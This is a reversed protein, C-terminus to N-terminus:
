KYEIKDIGNESIYVSKIYKDIIDPTLEDINESYKLEEDIMHIKNSNENMLEQIENKYNLFTEKDIRGSKYKEFYNLKKQKLRDNNEYLNKQKDLQIKKDDAEIHFKSKLIEHIKNEIEIVSPFEPEEDIIRCHFCYINKSNEKRNYDRFNYSVKRGCKSCRIFGAIPSKINKDDSRKDFNGKNRSKVIEMAKEQLERTVIAEHHNYIKKWEDEPIPTCKGGDLKTKVTKNYVFTGSYFENCIVRRVNYPVWLSNASKDKKASNSNNLRQKVRAGPTIIGGENLIKATEKLTNGELILKFIYRVNDAVIDDIIVNFRNNPDKIYGYPPAGTLYKGKEYNVHLSTKMKISIDRCYYDNLLNKFQIDLETGNSSNKISDYSDNISIFRVGMFPFINELYNGMEIYDRMFRSLDKVIICNIKGLKIKKMLRDFEPRSVTSGSYGEDIFEKM